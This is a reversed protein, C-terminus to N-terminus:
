FFDCHYLKLFLMLHSLTSLTQVPSTVFILWHTMQLQMEIQEVLSGVCLSANQQHHHQKVVTTTETLQKNYSGKLDSNPKQVPLVHQAHLALDNNINRTLETETHLTLLFFLFLLKYLLRLKHKMNKNYCINIQEAQTQVNAGSLLTFSFAELVPGGKLTLVGRQKWILGVIERRSM